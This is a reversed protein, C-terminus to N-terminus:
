FRSTAPISRGSIRTDPPSMRIRQRCFAIRLDPNGAAALQVKLHIIGNNYFFAPINVQIVATYVATCLFVAAKCPSFVDMRFLRIAPRRKNGYAIRCPLSVIQKGAIDTNVSLHDVM